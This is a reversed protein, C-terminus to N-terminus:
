RPSWAGLRTEFQLRRLKEARAEQRIAVTKLAEITGLCIFPSAAAFLYAYWPMMLRVDAITPSFMVGFLVAMTLIVTVLWFGNWTWATYNLFSSFRHMCGASVMTINILFAIFVAIGSLLWLDDEEASSEARCRVGEAWGKSDLCSMEGLVSRASGLVILHLFQPLLAPLLANGATLCFFTISEKRSSSMGDNKPPVQKMAAVDSDTFCLSLGICPLILQLYFSACLIPVAPLLPMCATLLVYLSLSISGIALFVGAATAGKLASRSKMIISWFQKSNPPEPLRFACSHSSVSSVLQVALDLPSGQKGAATDDGEDSPLLFDIGVSIDSEEFVGANRPLHSMGVSIVTDHYEQFVSVKGFLM